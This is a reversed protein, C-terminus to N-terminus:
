CNLRSKTQGKLEYAQEMVLSNTGQLQRKAIFASKPLSSSDRKVRLQESGSSNGPLAEDFSGQSVQAYFRNDVSMSIAGYSLRIHYKM